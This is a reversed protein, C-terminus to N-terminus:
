SKQNGTADAAPPKAQPAPAPNAPAQIGFLEFLRRYGRRHTLDGGAHGVYMTFGALLIMCLKWATGNEPDRRRAITAWVAVLFALISLLVGTWRHWFLEATQDFAFPDENHGENWAFSWGVVSALIATLAGLWLCYFAFDSCRYSGRLGFLGFLGGVVLLAIPFHVIAPHCDGFARWVRLWFTAQPTLPKPQNANEAPDSTETTAAPLQASIDAWKAGQDIWSKIIDIENAPLPPGEEAPPMREEEDESILVDHLLSDSADGPTVFDESLLIDSQDVRLDGEQEDAGHCELCHQKLIPFVDRAFDVSQAAEPVADTKPDAAAPPTEQSPEQAPCIGAGFAVCTAVCLVLLSSSRGSPVSRHFSPM